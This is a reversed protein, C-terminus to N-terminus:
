SRYLNHRWSEFAMGAEHFLRDIAAVEERTEHPGTGDEGTLPHSDCGFDGDIMWDPGTGTYGSVDAGDTLWEGCWLCYDGPYKARAM